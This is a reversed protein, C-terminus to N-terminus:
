YGTEFFDAQQMDKWHEKCDTLDNNAEETYLNTNVTVGGIQTVTFTGIKKAIQLKCKAAIWQKVWPDEWLKQPEVKVAVQCYVHTEPDHGKVYLQHTTRNWIHNIDVLNFQKLQDWVSWQITRFLVTDMSMHPGMWMDAQFTRNFSFDPDAIGFMQNRRRMEEFKIVSLVCDPFQIIRNKRFEPQYFVSHHIIVFDYKIAEPYLEYIMNTEKDIVRSFEKDTLSLNISDSMTVEDKLWQIM